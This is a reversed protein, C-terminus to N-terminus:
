EFMEVVGLPDFYIIYRDGYSVCIGYKDHYRQISRELFDETVGLYEAIEYRGKIRANYARVIASFPVLRSYAWARARLEQKRARIDSQDLINGSTTFHHGIEEALVCTKEVRSSISSSNLAIVNDFYLGKLRMNKFPHERIEISNEEAEILLKDLM